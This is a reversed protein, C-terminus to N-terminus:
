IIVIYLNYTSIGSVRLRPPMESNGLKLRLALSEIKVGETFKIEIQSGARM